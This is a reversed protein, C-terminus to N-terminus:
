LPPLIAQSLVSAVLRLSILIPVASSALDLAVWSGPPASGAAVRHLMAGVFLGYLAAYTAAHLAVVPLLVATDRFRAITALTAGLTVMAMATAVPAWSSFSAVILIAM